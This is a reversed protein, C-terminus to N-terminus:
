EAPEAQSQEGELQIDMVHINVKNVVRGTMNQVAEKVSKQVEESVTPIKVGAKLVLYVDLSMDSETSSVRISKLAEDKRFVSNIRMPQAALGAVGDIDLAANRAISAIVEESIILGGLKENRNVDSM